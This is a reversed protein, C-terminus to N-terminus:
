DFIIKQLINFNIDYKVKAAANKLMSQGKTSITNAVLYVLHIDNARFGDPMHGIFYNTFYVTFAEFIKGANM